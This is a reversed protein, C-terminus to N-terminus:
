SCGVVAHGAVYAEVASVAEALTSVKAVTMGDPVGAEVVDACNDAPALFFTAGEGSAGAMKQAIGGIPGVIGTPDITGTGAVHRGGNLSGPTLKDIIGLSLMLGASPGGVDDLNVAIPFNARYTEGVEIGLFARGPEIPSQETKVEVTKAGQGRIVGITAVSGPAVKSMAAGVDDIVVIKQGNISTLEDGPELNGDAPAGDTVSSVIVLTRYPIKLYSLAAAVSDAKSDSFQRVGEASVQAGTAGEPYLADRPLIRVDRRIWGVIVRGLYIGTDPGGRENVTTIDLTGTTPYTTAGSIQLLPKGQTSGLVDFVPGPSIEVYPMPVLVGAAFLTLALLTATGSWWVRRREFSV